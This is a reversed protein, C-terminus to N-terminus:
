LSKLAERRFIAEKQESNVLSLYIEKSMVKLNPKEENKFTIPRCFEM